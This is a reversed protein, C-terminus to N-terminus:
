EKPLDFLADSNVGFTDIIYQEFTNVPHVMVMDADSAMMTQLEAKVESVDKNGDMDSFEETFADYYYEAKLGGKAVQVYYKGETRFYKVLYVDYSGDDISFQIYDSGEGTDVDGFIEKRIGIYITGDDSNFNCMNDFGVGILSLSPVFESINQETNELEQMFIITQNDPDLTVRTSLDSYNFISVNEEGWTAVAQNMLYDNSNFYAYWEDFSEKLDYNVRINLYNVSGTVLTLGGSNVLNLQEALTEAGVSQFAPIHINNKIIQMYTMRMDTDVSTTLQLSYAAPETYYDSESQAPKISVSVDIGSETQGSERLEGDSLAANLTQIEEESSINLLAAVYNVVDSDDTLFSLSYDATDDHINIDLKYPRYTEPMNIDSLPNLNDNYLDLPKAYIGELSIEAIQPTELAKTTEPEASVTEPPEDAESVAPTCASLMLITLIIVSVILFFKRM